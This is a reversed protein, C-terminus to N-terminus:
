QTTRILWSCCCRWQVLPRGFACGFGWMEVHVGGVGFITESSVVYWARRLFHRHRCRWRGGRHADLAGDGRVVAVRHCVQDRYMGIPGVTSVVIDDRGDTHGGQFVGVVVMVAENGM